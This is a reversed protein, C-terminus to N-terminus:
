NVKRSIIVRRMKGNDNVTVLTDDEYWGYRPGGSIAFIADEKAHFIAHKIKAMDPINYYYKNLRKLEREIAGFSPQYSISNKIM